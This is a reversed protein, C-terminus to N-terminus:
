ADLLLPAVRAPDEIDFCHGLDDFSRVDAHPAIERCTDRRTARHSRDAAGWLFTTPVSLPGIDTATVDGLSQNLAALCYTGGDLYVKRAVRVLTETDAGPGSVGRFWKAAIYSPAAAMLAQGIGPTALLSVGAVKLDIRAAWRRYEELSPLQGLTLREVREPARKALAAAVLANVCTFALHARRVGLVDLLGLLVEVQERLTFRYQRHPRSFGFGPMELAVVRRGRQLTEALPVLHELVVPADAALVIPAHGGADGVDLVRLANGGVEVMRMRPDTRWRTELPRRRACRRADWACGWSATM